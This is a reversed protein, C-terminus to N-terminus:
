SMGLVSEISEARRALPHISRKGFTQRWGLVETPRLRRQIWGLKEAASFSDRNFRSRVLNRSAIFVHLGVDLWRRKKSTLWSERRLRSMVDRAHAETHNIPFLPNCVDRVLKSSTKTHTIPLDGFVESIIKPYIKKKDTDIQLQSLKGSLKKARELTRRIATQSCDRREGHRKTDREIAALRKKTMSGRPRISASEAWLIVRSKPEIVM